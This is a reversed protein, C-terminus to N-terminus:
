VNEVFFLNEYLIYNIYKQFWWFLSLIGILSSCWISSYVFLIENFKMLFMKGSILLNFALFVRSSVLLFAYVFPSMSDHNSLLLHAQPVILQTELFLNFSHSVFYLGRPNAYESACALVASSILITQWRAFLPPTYFDNSKGKRGLLVLSSSAIMIEFMAIACRFSNNFESGYQFSRICRVASIISTIFGIVVTDWSIGPANRSILKLGYSKGVFDTAAAAWAVIPEVANAM